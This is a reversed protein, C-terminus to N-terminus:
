GISERNCFYREFTILASSATLTIPDL